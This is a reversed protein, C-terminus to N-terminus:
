VVETAGLWGEEQAEQGGVDLDTVQLRDLQGQLGETAEQEM